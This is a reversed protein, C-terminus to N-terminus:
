LTETPVPASLRITMEPFQVLSNANIIDEVWTIMQEGKTRGLDTAPDLQLRSGRGLVTKHPHIMSTPHDYTGNTDLGDININTNNPLTIQTVGSESVRFSGYGRTPMNPDREELAPSKIDVIFEREANPYTSTPVHDSVTLECNTLEIGRWNHGKWMPEKQPLTEFIKGIRRYPTSDTNDSEKDLTSFIGMLDERVDGTKSVFEVDREKAVDEASPRIFGLSFLDGSVVVTRAHQAEAAEHVRPWRGEQKSTIVLDFQGDRLKDLAEAVTPVGVIEHGAETALEAYTERWQEDPEVTLIRAMAELSQAEPSLPKHATIIAQAQEILTSPISYALPSSTVEAVSQPPYFRNRKDYRGKYCLLVFVAIM